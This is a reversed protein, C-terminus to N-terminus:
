ILLLTDEKASVGLYLKEEVKYWWLQKHVIVIACLSYGIDLIFQNNIVMNKKLKLHGIVHKHV